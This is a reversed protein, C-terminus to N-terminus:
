DKASKIGMNNPNVCALRVPKHKYEHRAAGVYRRILEVTQDRSLGPKPTALTITLNICDIQGSVPYTGAVCLRARAHTVIDASASKCFSPYSSM